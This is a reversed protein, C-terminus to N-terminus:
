NSLALLSVFHRQVDHHQKFLLFSLAAARQAIGVNQGISRLTNNEMQSWYDFTDMNKPQHM